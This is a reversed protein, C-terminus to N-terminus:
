GPRKVLALAIAILAALEAAHLSAFVVPPLLPDNTLPTTRRCASADGPKM